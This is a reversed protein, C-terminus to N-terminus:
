PYYWKNSLAVLVDTWSGFAMLKICGRKAADDYVYQAPQLWEATQLWKRARADAKGCTFIIHWTRDGAGDSLLQRNTLINSTLIISTGHIKQGTALTERKVPGSGEVPSIWAASRRHLRRSAWFEGCQQRWMHFWLGRNQDKGKSSQGHATIRRRLNGCCSSVGRSTSPFCKFKVQIVQISRLMKLDCNTSFGGRVCQHFVSKRPSETKRRVPKPLDIRSGMTWFMGSKPFHRIAGFERFRRWCAQLHIRFQKRSQKHPNQTIECTHLPKGPLYPFSETLIIAIYSGFTLECPVVSPQGWGCRQCREEFVINPKLYREVCPQTVSRSTFM